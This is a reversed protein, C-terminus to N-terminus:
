MILWFGGIPDGEEERKVHSPSQGNFTAHDINLSPKFCAAGDEIPVRNWKCGKAEIRVVTIEWIQQSDL